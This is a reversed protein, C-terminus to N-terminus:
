PVAEMPLLVAKEIDEKRAHRNNITIKTTVGPDLSNLLDGYKLLMSEKDKKSAPFYNIDTFRWSKTFRSATEFIGDPYVRKVPIVDQVTRPIKYPVRDTKQLNKLTKSM